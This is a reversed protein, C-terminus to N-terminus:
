NANNLKKIDLRKKVNDAIAGIGLIALVTNIAGQYNLTGTNSVIVANEILIRKFEDQRDLQKFRVSFMGMSKNYEVSLEERSIKQGPYELSMVRSECSYLYLCLIAGLFVAIIQGLEKKTFTWLKTAM